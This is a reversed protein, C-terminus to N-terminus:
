NRSGPGAQWAKAYFAKYQPVIRTWDFTEAWARVAPRRQRILGRNQSLHCLLDVWDDARKGDLVWNCAGSVYEPIGGVRNTLVPTGCAMIELLADNATCDLMPMVVLDATQYRRVLEEDPLYPLLAVNPVGAYHREQERATRVDLHVKGPPLRRLVEAMFAHDRETYGVLLCRLPGEDTPQYGDPRFHTTDVGLLIVDIRDEPYGREVFYPVQSRSVLSIRDFGAFSRVGALVSHQRRASSHFTGAVAAGKQRFLGPWKPSAFEGWLFHAVADRGRPVAALFRLDDWLPVAANWTSGYWAIGARRLGHGLTWSRKQLKEWALDYWLPTAGLLETLAPFGSRKAFSPPHHQVLYIRPDGNMM